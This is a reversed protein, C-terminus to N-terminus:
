YHLPTVVEEEVLMLISLVDKLTSAHAVALGAGCRDVSLGLGGRVHSGRDAVQSGVTAQSPRELVECEGPEVNDVRDLLHTEVHVVKMLRMERGCLADKLVELAGEVVTQKKVV